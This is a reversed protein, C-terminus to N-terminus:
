KYPSISSSEFFYALLASRTSSILSKAGNVYRGFSWTAGIFDMIPNDRELDTLLYALILLLRVNFIRGAIVFCCFPM